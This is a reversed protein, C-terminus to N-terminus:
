GKSFRKKIERKIEQWEQLIHKMTALVPSFRYKFLKPYVPIFPLKEKSFRVALTRALPFIDFSYIDIEFDQILKALTEITGIRSLAVAASKRLNIDPSNLSATLITAAQPNTINGVAFAAYIRVDSDSDNLVAILALVARPNGIKSLAELAQTRLHKNSNNLTAILVELCRPNGMKSLAFAAYRRVYIDSESLATILANVGQTYDMKSLAFAALRRVNIDSDNLAIILTDVGKSNGVEALSHAVQLRFYKDSDNLATILANVGKHNGIEALSTAAWFRVYKDSHNFAAILADEAKSNGIKGLAKIVLSIVFSESSNLAAILADVSEPNSINGFAVVAEGRVDINSHHLAAILADVAQSNGIRGLAQIAHNRVYSNSDDLAAMLASVAQPNGIKDLAQIVQSRVYSDSDQLASILAPLAETNGIKGLAQAAQYRVYYDSDHLADILALITQSNAIEGLAEVAKSRLNWASANLDEQLRHFMQFNVTGLAVVTSKIFDTSPYSQWFKYIIDIIEVILPHSIEQCETLCQGALLLLSKFIDDKENIIVKLLPVPNQMLGALLSLTQHWDYEWLHEKALTIGNSAKRLYSATLYEQFTRHLFLYQDGDRTLKQLIGDQESLEWILNSASLNRFDSRVDESRLYNEIKSTLEDMSFIEKGECSFQYALEEMLQKKASVRVENPSQRRNEIGWKGLMYEVAKAYVQCRRAPLTLGKEQYLSCLLSLLLPNQALGGIQPKNRLEQILEKASISDDEIYGTANKFWIKIYEETQKQSFPVIEVEKAGEIFAGGYGVIRSTCIIQGRYNRVFRNLKNALDIRRAKPVEDLADFLLLCKGNSFKEKLLNNVAPL